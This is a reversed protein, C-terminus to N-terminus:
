LKYSNILQSLRQSLDLLNNSIVASQQAANTTSSALDGIDSTNQSIEGAASGQQQIAVAIRLNSDYIEAVASNIEHLSATSEMVADTGRDMNTVGQEMVAVSERVGNQIRAIVEHISRTSEQTRQALARVEDAVVAFGRGSEGARAAEIAANLALLNTQEAIERIVDLMGGIQQSDTELQSIVTSAQRIDDSLEHIATGTKGVVIEGNIARQQATEANQSAHGTNSEISAIAEVMEEISHIVEHTASLQASSDQETRQALQSAETAATTLQQCAVAVDKFSHRLQEVFRNFSRSIESIEDKGDASLQVTLDGTGDSIERMRQDLVGLRTSISRSLIFFGFLTSLAILATFILQMTQIKQEQYDIVRTLETKLEAFITRSQHITKRLEGYLGQNHTLGFQVSANVIAQFHQQYQRLPTLLERQSPTTLSNQLQKATQQFREAYKEDTRLFFDKENRRLQLILYSLEPENLQKALKESQHAARRLEGRLGSNEDLGIQKRNEVVRSFLERYRQAIQQLRQTEQQADIDEAALLQNLTHIHSTMLDSTTNFRDAYKQELRALFDKEERRLIVTDLEITEVLQRSHELSIVRKTLSHSLLGMLVLAISITLAMTLLKRKITM